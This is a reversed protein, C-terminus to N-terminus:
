EQNEVVKVLKQSRKGNQVIVRHVGRVNHQLHNGDELDGLQLAIALQASSMREGKRLGDKIVWVPESINDAHSPTKKDTEPAPGATEGTEKAKLAYKADRVRRCERKTCYFSDKRASGLPDGCVVCKRGTVKRASGDKDVQAPLTCYVAGMSSAVATVVTQMEDPVTVIVADTVRVVGTTMALLDYLQRVQGYQAENMSDVEIVFIKEM